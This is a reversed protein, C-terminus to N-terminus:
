GNSTGNRSKTPFVPACTPSSVGTSRPRLARDGGRAASRSDGAKKRAAALREDLRPLLKAPAEPPEHAQAKVLSRGWTTVAESWRGAQGYAVALSWYATMVSGFSKSM